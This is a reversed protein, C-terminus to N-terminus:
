PLVRLCEPGVRQPKTRSPFQVLARTRLLGVVVGRDMWMEAGRGRDVYLVKVTQGVALPTNRDDTM